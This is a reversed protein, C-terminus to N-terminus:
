STPHVSFRCDSKCISGKKKNCFDILSWRLFSTVLASINSQTETNVKGHGERINVKEPLSCQIGTMVNKTERWLMCM